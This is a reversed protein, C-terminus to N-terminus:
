PQNLEPAQDGLFLACDFDQTLTQGTKKTYVAQAAYMTGETLIKLRANEAVTLVELSIESLLGLRTGGLHKGPHEIDAAVKSSFRLGGGTAETMLTEDSFKAVTRASASLSPDIFTVLKAHTMSPDIDIVVQTDRDVSLCVYGAAFAPTSSFLLLALFIRM